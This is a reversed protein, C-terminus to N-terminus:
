RSELVLRDLLDDRAQELEKVKALHRDRSRLHATAHRDADRDGPDAEVVFHAAQEDLVALEDRARRLDDNVKRLKREVAARSM